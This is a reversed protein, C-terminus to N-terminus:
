FNNSKRKFGMKAMYDRIEIAEEYRESKILHDLKDNFEVELLSKDENESLVESVLNSYYDKVDNFDTFQIKKSDIPLNKSDDNEIRKLFDETIAGSDILFKALHNPRGKFINIISSLNKYSPSKM